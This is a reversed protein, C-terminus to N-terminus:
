NVRKILPFKGAFLSSIMGDANEALNPGPSGKEVTGRWVEHMYKPAEAWLTVRIGLTWVTVDYSSHGHASGSGGYRGVYFSGHSEGPITVTGQRTVYVVACTLDPYKEMGVCHIEWRNPANADRIEELNDESVYEVDFGRREFEIKCANLLQKEQLQSIGNAKAAGTWYCPTLGITKVQRLDFDPDAIGEYRVTYNVSECGGVSIMLLMACVSIPKVM